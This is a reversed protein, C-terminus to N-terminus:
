VIVSNMEKIDAAMIFNILSWNKLPWNKTELKLNKTIRKM